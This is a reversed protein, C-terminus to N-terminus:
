DAHLAVAKPEWGHAALQDRLEDTLLLDLGAQQQSNARVRAGERARERERSQRKSQKGM